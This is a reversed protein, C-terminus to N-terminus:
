KSPQLISVRNGETDHFSVYTGIGPINVPDGLVEGGASQIKKISEHIDDVSIVISPHQPPM